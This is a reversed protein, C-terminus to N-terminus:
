IVSLLSQLGPCIWCPPKADTKKIVLDSISDLGTEKMEGHMPEEGHQQRICAAASCKVQQTM